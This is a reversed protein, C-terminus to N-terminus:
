HGLNFRAFIAQAFILMGLNSPVDQPPSNGRANERMRKRAHTKACANERMRKRAHTKACANERTRIRAHTKSGANEYLRKRAHTKWASDM